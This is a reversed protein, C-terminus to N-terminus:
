KASIYKERRINKTPFGKELLLAFSDDIMNPNGCLYIIDVEPNLSLENFAQQVYGSYEYPQKLEKERSLYARFKFRDHLLAFEVFDNLYLLDARYQVGLLLTITLNPDDNLRKAITPLMARYPSVGTGTAVLVYHEPQEEEKLILKGFPGSCLLEQGITLNFFVNTAFGGQVPSVAIELDDTKDPITSLSYSRRLPKGTEPNEWIFTIFQGPTFELTQKDQREFAVHIVNPTIMKTEKVILNFQNM